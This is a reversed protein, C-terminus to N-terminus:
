LVAGRKFKLPLYKRSAVLVYVLLSSAMSMFFPAGLNLYDRYVPMAIFGVIMASIAGWEDGKKYIMGIITVVVIGATGLSEAMMVLDYIRDSSLAFLYAIIGATVVTMRAVHVKRKENQIKFFPILFNHTVLASQALIISDVTSLIAAIMAGTFLIYLYGPLFKEALLPLFTESNELGPLIKPGILGLFAPVSGLALYMLGASFSAKRAVSVNKAALTRSILEQTFVAGIVPILWRDVRQIVHEDGRLLSLREPEAMIMNYAAEFGGIQSVVLIFILTITVILITGQIVDSIIDGMLGGLFSYIIIFTAAITLALEISIPSTAHIVEGFARVQAGAWVMSSPLMIWVSLKELRSGFHQRYFDALTTYGGKWFPVAVFLGLILFNLTYGFPDARGGSLGMEYIAGSSGICTEAGFWTAFLSFTIPLVGMNRGALFYDKENKIRLSVWYSISLQIFLYLLIFVWSM